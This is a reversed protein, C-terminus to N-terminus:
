ALEKLLLEIQLNIYWILDSSLPKSYLQQRLFEIKQEISM